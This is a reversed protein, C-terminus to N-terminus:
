VDTPEKAPESPQIVDRIAIWRKFIEEAEARLKQGVAPAYIELSKTLSVSIHLLDHILGNLTGVTAEAREARDAMAELDEIWVSVARCGTKKGREIDAAIRPPLPKAM